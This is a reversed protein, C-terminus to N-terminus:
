ESDADVVEFTIEPLSVDKDLDPFLKWLLDRNQRLPSGDVYRWKEKGSRAAIMFSTSKVRKGDVVMVGETPVFCLQEGGANHFEEPTAVKFKEIKIGLDIIQKAGARLAERFKEEGGALKFVAPHTKEILDDADGRNFSNMMARVEAAIAKGDAPELKQAAAALGSTGVMLTALLLPKMLQTSFPNLASAMQGKHALLCSDYRRTVGPALM